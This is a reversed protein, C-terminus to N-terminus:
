RFLLKYNETLVPCLSECVASWFSSVLYLFSTPQSVIWSGEERVINKYKEAFNWIIHLVCLGAADQLTYPADVLGLLRPTAHTHVHDERTRPHHDPAEQRHRGALRRMSGTKQSRHGEGPGARLYWPLFM